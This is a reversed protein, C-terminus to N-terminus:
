VVMDAADLPMGVELAVVIGSLVSFMNQVGM